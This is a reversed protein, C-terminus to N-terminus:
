PKLIKARYQKPTLGTFRKFWKTFQSPEFDLTLAIDHVSKTHGSLMQRATELIKYQYVGCASQGTTEKITNSLHTPHIFMRSAFDGVELMNEAKGKVLADLHEDILHIYQQQIQAPRNM